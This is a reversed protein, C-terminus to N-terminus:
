DQTNRLSSPPICSCLNDFDKRDLGTLVCYNDSTLHTTSEFNMPPVDHNEEIKSVKPLLESQMVNFIDILEESNAKCIKEQKQIIQLAAATFYGNSIHKRCCRAPTMVFISRELPARIKIYSKIQLSPYESNAFYEGCVTCRNNSKPLRYFPLLISRMTSGLFHTPLQNSSATVIMMATIPQDAIMNFPESRTLQTLYSDDTQTQSISFKEGGIETIEMSLNANTNISREFLHNFVQYCRNCLHIHVQTVDILKTLDIVGCSFVFRYLKTSNQLLLKREGGQFIHSCKTCANYSSSASLHTKSSEFM